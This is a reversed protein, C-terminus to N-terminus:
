KLSFTGKEWGSSSGIKFTQKIPNKQRSKTYSFDYQKFWSKAFEITYLVSLTRPFATFMKFEPPWWGSTVYRIVNEKFKPNKIGM